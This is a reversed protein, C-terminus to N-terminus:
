CLKTFNTPPAIGPRSATGAEAYGQRGSLVGVAESVSSSTLTLELAQLTLANNMSPTSKQGKQPVSLVEKLRSAFTSPNACYRVLACSDIQSLRWFKFTDDQSGTSERIKCASSGANMSSSVSIRPCLHITRWRASHRACTVPESARTHRM